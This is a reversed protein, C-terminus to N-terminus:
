GGWSWGRHGDPELFPFAPPWHRTSSLLVGSGLGGLSTPTVQRQLIIFTRERKHPHISERGSQLSRSRKASVSVGRQSPLKHIQVRAQPRTAPAPSLRPEAAQRADPRSATGAAGILAGGAVFLWPCVPGGGEGGVQLGPRRRSFEQAEPPLWSAWSHSPFTVQQGRHGRHLASCIGEWGGGALVGLTDGPERGRSGSTQLVPINEVLQGQPPRTHLKGLCGPSLLCLHPKGPPFPSWPPRAPSRAAPVERREGHGRALICSKRWALTWLDSVLCFYRSRVQRQQTTCKFDM